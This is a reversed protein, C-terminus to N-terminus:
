ADGFRRRSGVQIRSQLERVDIELLAYALQEADPAEFSFAIQREGDLAGAGADISQRFPQVARCGECAALACDGAEIDLLQEFANLATWKGAAAIEADALGRVIGQCHVQLDGVADGVDFFM